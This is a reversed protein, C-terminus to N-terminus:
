PSCPTCRDRSWLAGHVPLVVGNEGPRGILAGVHGQDLVQVLHQADVHELRALAKEAIEAVVVLGPQRVGGVDVVDGALFVPAPAPPLVGLVRLQGMGVAHDVALDLRAPDDDLFLEVPQGGQSGLHPGLKPIGDAIDAHKVAGGLVRGDAERDLGLGFGRRGGLDGDLGRGRDAVNREDDLPSVLRELDDLFGDELGPLRQRERGLEGAGRGIEVADRELDPPGVAPLQGLDPRLDMLSHGEVAVENGFFRPRRHTLIEGGLTQEGLCAGQGLIPEIVEGGLFLEELVAQSDVGPEAPRVGLEPKQVELRPPEVFGEGMEVFREVADRIVAPREIVFSQRQAPEVPRFVRVIIKAMRAPEPILRLFAHRLSLHGDAVAVPSLGVAVQRPGDGYVARDELAIDKPRKDLVPQAVPRRSPPVEVLRGRDVRFVREEERGPGGQGAAAPGAASM